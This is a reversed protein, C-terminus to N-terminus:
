EQVLEWKGEANKRVRVTRGDKLKREVIEGQPVSKAPIAKAASGREEIPLGMDTLKQEEKTIRDLYSKALPNWDPGPKKNGKDLEARYEAIRARIERAKLQKTTLPKPEKPLEPAPPGVFEQQPQTLRKHMDLANKVWKEVDAPDPEEGEPGKLTTVATQYLTAVDKVTPQANTEAIRKVNGKEDRTFMFRDDDSQWIEGIGKGEGWPSPKKLRPLPTIGSQKAIIQRKVDILEDPSFQGSKVAEDYAETAENFEARQKASYGFETNEQQIKQAQLAAAENQKAREEWTAKDRETTFERGLKAEGAQFERGLGAEKAHFERGLEAQEAAFDQQAKLENQRRLM